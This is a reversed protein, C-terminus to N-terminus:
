GKLRHLHIGGGVDIHIGTTFPLGGTAVTRISRAIDKPQGWRQMPVGGSKIYPDYKAFAPATMETEIIGPRIEFVGINFEGLRTAFLNNLMSLASKTICYDARNEGIMAANVSSVTVITKYIEDDARMVMRNAIEQTLFFTGRLNVAVSRDFSEPQLTLMDGRVLSTVGANNVLCSIPGFREEIMDIAASHADIVSVDFCFYASRDPYKGILEAAGAPIPDELSALAVAFGAELLDEAIALGLGRGAGTVLATGLGAM